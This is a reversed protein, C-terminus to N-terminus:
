NNKAKFSVEYDQLQKKLKKIVEEQDKLRLVLINVKDTTLDNMSPYEEEAEFFQQLSFPSYASILFWVDVM